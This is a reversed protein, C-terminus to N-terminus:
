VGTHGFGGDERGTEELESAYRVEEIEVREVRSVVLQAIRMRNKVVFPKKGHNVLLVKVEGRYDSDITGPANLVSIGHELALGSRPRVQAEFGAELAIKVGTPVLEYEGPAITIERDLSALLDIGSAEQSMYGPIPNRRNLRYIKLHM